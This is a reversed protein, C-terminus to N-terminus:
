GGATWALGQRILQRVSPHTLAKADHGLANYHVRGSIGPIVRAGLMSGIGFRVARAASYVHKSQKLLRLVPEPVAKTNM